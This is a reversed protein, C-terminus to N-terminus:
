KEVPHSKRIDDFSLVEQLKEYKFLASEYNKKWYDKKDDDTDAGIKTRKGHSTMARRQPIKLQDIQKQLSEIQEDRQAIMEDKRKNLSKVEAIQKLLEEVDGDGDEDAIYDDSINEVSEETKPTNSKPLSISQFLVSDGDELDQVLRDFAKPTPARVIQDNEEYWM